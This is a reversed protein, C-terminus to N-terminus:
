KTGEIVEKAEDPTLHIPVFTMYRKSCDQCKVIILTGNEGTFRKEFSLRGVRLCDEHGISVFSM